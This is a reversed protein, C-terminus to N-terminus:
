RARLAEYVEGALQLYAGEGFVADIAAPVTMGAAIHGLILASIANTKTM